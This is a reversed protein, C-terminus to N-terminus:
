IPVAHCTLQYVAAMFNMAWRQRTYLGLFCSFYRWEGTCRLSMSVVLKVKKGKVYLIDFLM